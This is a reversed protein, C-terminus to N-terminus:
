NRAWRSTRRLHEVFPAVRRRLRAAGTIAGGAPLVLLLTSPEPIVAQPAFLFQSPALARDSIRVEDVSGNVFDTPGNFWGRGITFNTAGTNSLATSIPISGQL